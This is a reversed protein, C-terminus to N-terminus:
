AAAATVALLGRLCPLAVDLAAASTAPPTAIAAANRATVGEHDRRLAWRVFHFALEAHRQEDAAIHRYAAILVPDTESEAAMLAELAAGAEGFCGEALVLDVVDLLSTAALSGSVDLPGPGIDRGAFASALSFCLRAHATEDALARTCAEVLEPPAGLSLLQLQFRAFAAISGHELQGLRTFHEARAAREAASLPDIRPAATPCLWADSTVAPAVRAEALVLFPRGCVSGFGCQRVGNNMVCYKGDPCDQQGFCEDKATQCVFGTTGCGAATSACHFGPACEADSFCSDTLCAGHGGNGSCSCRGAFAACDADSGCGSACARMAGPEAIEGCYGYAYASCVSADNTCDVFTSVRPLPDPRPAPKAADSTSGDCLPSQERYTYGEQCTVTGSQADTVPETCTRRHGTDPGGGGSGSAGGTTGQTTGGCALPAIGLAGLLAFCLSSSLTSRPM